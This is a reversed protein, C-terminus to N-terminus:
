VDNMEMVDAKRMMDDGRKKQKEKKTLFFDVRLHCALSPPQLNARSNTLLPVHQLFARIIKKERM